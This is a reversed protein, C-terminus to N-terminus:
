WCATTPFTPTPKSTPKCCGCLRCGECGENPMKVGLTRGAARKKRGPSGLSARLSFCPSLFVSLSVRLSFFCLSFCLSVSLYLFDLSLSLFVSLSFCLVPFDTYHVTALVPPCKAYWPGYGAAGAEKHSDEPLENPASGGAEDLRPKWDKSEGGGGGGSGHVGEGWGGQEGDVAVGGHGGNGGGEQL